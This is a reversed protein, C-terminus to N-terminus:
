ANKIMMLKLVAEAPNRSIGYMPYYHIGFNAHSNMEIVKGEDKEFDSVMLDVGCVLNGSISKAAKIANSKIRDSILNTVDIAEGGQHINAKNSLFLVEGHKPIYDLFNANKSISILYRKHHPHKSRLKNKDHVLKDVNSVGDGIVYAPIRTTACVAQDGVVLVRVDIGTIREELLIKSKPNSLSKKAYEWAASFSEEDQVGITIGEGARADSPKLVYDQFKKEGWFQFAERYGNEDSTFSRFEPISVGAQYLLSQAKSKQKITQVAEKSNLNTSIGNLHGIIKEGWFVKRINSGKESVITLELNKAALFFGDIHSNRIAHSFLNTDKGILYHEVFLKPSDITM